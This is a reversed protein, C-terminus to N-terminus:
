FLSGKRQTLAGGLRERATEVDELLLLIKAMKTIAVIQAKFPGPNKREPPGATLLSVM